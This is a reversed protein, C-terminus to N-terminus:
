SALPNPKGTGAPDFSLVGNTASGDVGDVISARRAEETQQQEKNRLRYAKADDSTRSSRPWKGAARSSDPPPMSNGFLAYIVVTEVGETPTAEPASDPPSLLSDLDARLSALDAHFTSLDITPAPKQSDATTAPPAPDDVQMKEVDAVLDDGLPLVEVQPEKHPSVVNAEDRILGIHLTKTEQLLRDCHWVPVVVDGYLQFILCPFPLTATFKFAREHIEAILM